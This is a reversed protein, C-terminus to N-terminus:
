KINGNGTGSRGSLKGRALIMGYKQELLQYTSIRQLSSDEM